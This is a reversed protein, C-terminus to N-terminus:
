TLPFNHLVKLFPVVHYVEGNLAAPVNVMSIRGPLNFDVALRFSDGLFDEAEISVGMAMEYNPFPARIVGDAGFQTLPIDDAHTIRHAYLRMAPMTALGVYEYTLFNDPVFYGMSLVTLNDGRRFVNLIADDSYMTVIGVTPAVAVFLPGTTDVTFQPCQALWPTLVDIRESM